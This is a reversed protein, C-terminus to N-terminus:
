EIDETYKNNINNNNNISRVTDLLVSLLLLFPFKIAIKFSINWSFKM